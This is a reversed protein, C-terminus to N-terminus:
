DRMEVIDSKALNPSNGSRHEKANETLARVGILFEKKAPFMVWAKKSRSDKNRKCKWVVVNEQPIHNYCFVAVENRATNYGELHIEILAGCEKCPAEYIDCM